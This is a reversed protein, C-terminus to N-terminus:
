RVGTAVGAAAPHSRVWRALAALVTTMLAWQVAIMALAVVTPTGFSLAGFRVGAFYAAAGGVGGLVAALRPRESAWHLSVNLTTAFNVWLATMWIPAPWGIQAQPPFRLVGLLTLTSDAIYGVWAVMALLLFEDAAHERSTLLHVAVVGLLVGVGCWVEGRAAGWVLAFWAIQYGAINILLRM